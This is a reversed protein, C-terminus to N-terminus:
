GSVHLMVSINFDDAGYYYDDGNGEMQRKREEVAWGKHIHRLVENWDHEKGLRVRVSHGSWEFRVSAYSVPSPPASSPSPSFADSIENSLQAAPDWKPLDCEEAMFSFFSLVSSYRYFPVSVPALDGQTSAKVLFRTVKAYKEELFSFNESSAIDDRTSAAVPITEKEPVSSTTRVDPSAKISKTNDREGVPQEADATLNKM